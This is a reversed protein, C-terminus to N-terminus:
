TAQQQKAIHEMVRRLDKEPSFELWVVEEDSYGNHGAPFYFMDGAKITEENGHQGKFCVGLSSM